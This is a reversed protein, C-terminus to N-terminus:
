DKWERFDDDSTGRYNGDSDIRLNGDVEDRKAPIMFRYIPPNGPRVVAVEALKRPAGAVPILRPRPGGVTTGADRARAAARAMGKERVYLSQATMNWGEASWPNLDKVM